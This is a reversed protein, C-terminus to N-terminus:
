LWRGSWHRLDSAQLVTVDESGFIAATHNVRPKADDTTIPNWGHTPRNLLM